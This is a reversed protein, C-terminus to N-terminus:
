CRQTMTRYQKHRNIRHIQAHILRSVTWCYPSTHFISNPIFCVKFASTHIEPCKADYSNHGLPPVDYQPIQLESRTRNKVRTVLCFGDKNSNMHNLQLNKQIQHFDQTVSSNLIKLLWNNRPEGHSLIVVTLRDSIMSTSTDIAM